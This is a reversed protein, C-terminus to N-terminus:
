RMAICTALKSMEGSAAGVGVWHLLASAFKAQLRAHVVADGTAEASELALNMARIGEQINRSKLAARGVLALCHARDNHNLQERLLAEAISSAATNSELHGRLEARLVQLSIPVLKLNDIV